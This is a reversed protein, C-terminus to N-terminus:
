TEGAVKGIPWGEPVARREVVARSRPPAEVTEGGQWRGGVEVEEITMSSSDEGLDGIRVRDHLVVTVVSALGNGAGEGDCVVM